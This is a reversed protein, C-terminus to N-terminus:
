SGTKELVGDKLADSIIPIIEAPRASASFAVGPVVIYRGNQVADMNKTGPTSELDTVKEEWKDGPEGREPLDCLIIVDPNAEAVAEWSVQPWEEKVDAFANKMGVAEGMETATSPGGAIYPAGGISSYLVVFTTGEPAQFSKTLADNQKDILEQAEKERGFIKGLETLDRELLEFLTKGANDGYDPCETNTM